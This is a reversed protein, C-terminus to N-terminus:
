EECGNESRRQGDPCDDEPPHSAASGGGVMMATCGSLFMMILAALLIRMCYRRPRLMHPLGLMYYIIGGAHSHAYGIVLIEQLFM